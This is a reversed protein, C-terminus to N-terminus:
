GNSVTGKEPTGTVQDDDDVDANLTAANGAQDLIQMKDVRLKTNESNLSASRENKAQVTSQRLDIGNTASLPVKGNASEITARQANLAGNSNISVRNKAKFIGDTIDVSGDPEM